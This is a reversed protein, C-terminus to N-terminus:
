AGDSTVPDLGSSDSGCLQRRAARVTASLAHSPGLNDRRGYCPELSHCRTPRHYVETSPGGQCIITQGVPLVIEIAPVSREM